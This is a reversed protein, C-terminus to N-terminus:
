KYTIRHILNNNEVKFVLRLISSKKLNFLSNSLQTRLSKCDM